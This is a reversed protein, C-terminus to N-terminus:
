KGTLEQNPLYDRQSLTIQYQVDGSVPARDGHWNSLTLSQCVDNWQQTSNGPNNPFSFAGCLMLLTITVHLSPLQKM